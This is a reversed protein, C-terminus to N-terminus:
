KLWNALRDVAEVIESQAGAYSFRLKKAYEGTDFDDGPACAVGTEELLLQCFSTAEDSLHAADVYIYFAGDPQSAIPLGLNPLHAMLYARNDAYTRVHRELEDVADFAAPAAIQSLAPSSIYLNQALREVARLKNEPVVMWGIRWGTMCYYKSFSNIVFSRDSYCLATKERRGYSIGHYIEDSFLPLDHADCINVINNLEDADIMGGTPNAPSAVLVADLHGANRELLESTMQFNHEAVSRIIHPRFGLAEIINPYAPYYPAVMGIRAGRPLASLFGLVFGASSGTTIVVRQWPIEVDCVEAYYRAIRRRLRPQGLAETYGLKDEYLAKAAAARVLEPAPAGPQGAEMHIIHRGEAELANARDLVDMVLFPRVSQGAYAGGADEKVM